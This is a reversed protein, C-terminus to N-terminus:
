EKRQAEGPNGENSEHRPQEPEDKDESRNETSAYYLIASLPLIYLATFPINDSCIWLVSAFLFMMVWAAIWKWGIRKKQKHLCVFLFAWVALFLVIATIKGM